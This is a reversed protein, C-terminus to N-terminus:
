ILWKKEGHAIKYKDSFYMFYFSSLIEGIYGIYRDERKGFQEESIKEIRFLRPFLWQCYENFVYEKAILMNYNYLYVGQFLRKAANYERTNFDNLVKWVIDMDKKRIYRGYQQQANQRCLFPLPLIMDLNNEYIKKREIDNLVLIRRYHFIGKYQCHVNKWIYYSATLESYNKNKDSINDGINDGNECIQLNTLSKGVQIPTIYPSFQQNHQLKKDYISKAMYIKFNDNQEQLKGKLEPLDELLPFIKKSRYYESMILYELHSDINIINHFNMSMLTKDIEYHYAEPTAVLILQDRDKETLEQCLKVPIGEINEPHDQQETVYFTEVSCQYLETIARYIQYAVAKAGYILIKQDHLKMLIKKRECDASVM